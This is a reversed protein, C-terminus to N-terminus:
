DQEKERVRGDLLAAISLSSRRHGDIWGWWRLSCRYDKLVLFMADAAPDVGYDFLQCARPSGALAELIAVEGTM